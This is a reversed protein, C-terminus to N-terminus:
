EEVWRADCKRCHWHPGTTRPLPLSALWLAALRLGAAGDTLEIDLSNCRPCNQLEDAAVNEQDSGALVRLAEDADSARVQLRMGGIANSLFWDMRVMNEDALWAEIGAADLSGKALLAEPLDRFRAITVLENSM